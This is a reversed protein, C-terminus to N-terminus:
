LTYYPKYFLRRYWPLDAFRKAMDRRIALEKGNLQKLYYEKISSTNNNVISRSIVRIQELLKKSLDIEGNTRIRCDDYDVYHVINIRIPAIESEDKISLLEKYEKKSILVCGDNNEM